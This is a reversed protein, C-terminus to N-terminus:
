SEDSVGDDAENEQIESYRLKRNLKKYERTLAAKNKTSVEKMFDQGTIECLGLVDEKLLELSEIIGICEDIKGENLKKSFGSSIVECGYFRLIKSTMKYKLHFAFQHLMRAL